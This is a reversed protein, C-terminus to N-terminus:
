SILCAVTSPIFYHDTLGSVLVEWQLGSCFMFLCWIVDGRGSVKKTIYYKTAKIWIAKSFMVLGVLLCDNSLIWMTTLMKCYSFTYPNLLDFIQIGCHIYWMLLIQTNIVMEMWFWVSGRMAHFAMYLNLVNTWSSTLTDSPLTIEVPRIGWRWCEDHPVQGM